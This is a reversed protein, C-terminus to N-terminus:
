PNTGEKESILEVVSAIDRLFLDYHEPKNERALFSPHFTAIAPTKHIQGRWTWEIHGPRGRMQTIGDSTGWMVVTASTGLTVVVKPQVFRIIGDLHPRCSEVEPPM